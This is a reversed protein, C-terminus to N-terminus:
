SKSRSLPGITSIELRERYDAYDLLAELSTGDRRWGDPDMILYGELAAWELGSRKVTQLAPEIVIEPERRRRGDGDSLPIERQLEM